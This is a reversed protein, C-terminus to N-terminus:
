DKFGFLLSLPLGQPNKIFDPLNNILAPECDAHVKGDKEKNMLTYYYEFSAGGLTRLGYLFPNEHGFDGIMRLPGGLLVVPRRSDEKQNALSIMGISEFLFGAGILSDAVKMKKSDYNTNLIKEIEKQAGSTALKIKEKGFNAASFEKLERQLDFKKLNNKKSDFYESLIKEIEKKNKLDKIAVTKDSGTSKLIEKIEKKVKKSASKIKKKGFSARLLEKFEKKFDIKQLNAKKNDFFEKLIKNIEKKIAPDAIKIKKRGFGSGWIIKPITGLLLLISGLCMSEKSPKTSCIDPMDKRDGKFITATQNVIDKITKGMAKLLMVQDDVLFKMMAFTKERIEKGKEGLSLFKKYSEKEILFDLNMKREKKSGGNRYRNEIENAFSIFIPVYGFALIASLRTSLGKMMFPSAAFWILSSLVTGPQESKIGAGTVSPGGIFYGAGLIASAGMAIKASKGLYLDQIKENKQLRFPGKRRAGFLAIGMLAVGAATQLITNFIGTNYCLNYWKDSFVNFGKNKVSSDKKISLFPPTRDKGIIRNHFTNRLDSISSSVKFDNQVAASVIVNNM